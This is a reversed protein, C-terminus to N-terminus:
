VGERKKLEALMLSSEGLRAALIRAINRYIISASEANSDILERYFRMAVVAATARVTASRVDNGVLAMEGFCEGPGLRALEVPRGGRQKEVVVEGAILVYFSNGMDGERFVAEGPQITFHEGTALTALLCAQSMGAFIPVKQAIKQIIAPDLKLAPATRAPLVEARVREAINQVIAPDIGM